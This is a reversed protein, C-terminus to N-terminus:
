LMVVIISSPPLTRSCYPQELQELESFAQARNKLELHEFYAIKLIEISIKICIYKCIKAVNCCM